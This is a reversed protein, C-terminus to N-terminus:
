RRAAAAQVAGNPLKTLLWVTTNEITVQAAVVSAAWATALGFKSHYTPRVVSIM